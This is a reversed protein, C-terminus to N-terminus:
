EAGGSADNNEQNDPSDTTDPTDTAYQEVCRCNVTEEPDGDPDGPFMLGNPYEDDMSKTEYGDLEAHSDRTHEDLEAMWIRSSTVGSEVASMRSAGNYGGVMETRAISDARWTSLDSFTAELADAFQTVTLGDFEGLASLKQDLIKATTENVYGALKTARETASKMILEDFSVTIGLADAVDSAGADMAATIAPLLYDTAREVWLKPDFVDSAKPLTTARSRNLRKTADKLQAEALRKVARTMGAELRDMAKRAKDPSVGRILRTPVEVRTEEVVEEAGSESKSPEPTTDVDTSVRAEVPRADINFTQITEPTIRAVPATPKPAFLAEYAVLTLHGYEPMADKGFLARGEDITILNTNALTAIRQVLSDQSEQLVSIDSTDFVARLGTGALFQRDIESAVLSLTPLVSAEWFITWSADVNAYTRQGGVLDLPIGLALAIDDGAVGISNLYEFEKPSFSTKIFHPQVPGSVVAIRGASSPGTLAAEVEERLGYYEESNGEPNGLYVIGSPNGGNALQGAQWERSAKTLGISDLAATMPARAAWPDMPDPYRFWFVESPALIATEKGVGVRYAIIEGHPAHASPDGLIVEVKGYHLWATKPTDVRSSGRDMIVFAQGTHTGRGYLSRRFLLGSIDTSPAENFLTTLFHPVEDGAENIIKLRRSALSNVLLDFCRSAVASVALARDLSPRLRSIEQETSIASGGWPSGIMSFSGWPTQFMGNAQQAQIIQERKELGGIPNGHRDLLAM